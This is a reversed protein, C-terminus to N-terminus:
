KFVDYRDRAFSLCADKVLNMDTYVRVSDGDKVAVDESVNQGEFYGKAKLRDVFSVWEPWPHLASISPSDTDCRTVTDIATSSCYRRLPLSSFRFHNTFLRAPILAPKQARLPFASFLFLKSAASM